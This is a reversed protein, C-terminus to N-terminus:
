CSRSRLPSGGYFALWCAGSARLARGNRGTAGRKEAPIPGIRHRPQYHNRDNGLFADVSDPALSTAIVAPAVSVGGTRSGNGDDKVVVEM